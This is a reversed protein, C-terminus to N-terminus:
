SNSFYIGTQIYGIALRSIYINSTNAKTSSKEMPLSKRSQLTMKQLFSDTNGINTQAPSHTLMQACIKSKTDFCQSSLGMFMACYKGTSRLASMPDMKHYFHINWLLLELSKNDPELTLGGIVYM